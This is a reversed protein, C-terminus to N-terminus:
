HQQQWGQWRGDSEGSSDYKIVVVTLIVKVVMVKTSIVAVTIVIMVVM